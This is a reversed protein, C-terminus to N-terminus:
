SCLGEKKEEISGQYCFTYNNNQSAITIEAYVKYNEIYYWSSTTPYVKNESDGPIYQIPLNGNDRSQNKINSNIMYTVIKQYISNAYTSAMDKTIKQTETKNETTPEKEEEAQDMFERSRLYLIWLVQSQEKEELNEETAKQELTSTQEIIQNTKSNKTLTDKILTLTDEYINRDGYNIITIKNNELQKNTLLIQFIEPIAKKLQKGEIDKNVLSLANENEIFIYSLQKEENIVMFFEPGMDIKIEIGTKYNKESFWKESSGLTAQYEPWSKFVVVLAVAIIVVLVVFGYGAIKLKKNM